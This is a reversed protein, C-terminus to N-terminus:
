QNRPDFMRHIVLRNGSITMDSLTSTQGTRRLGQMQLRKGKKLVEIIIPSVPMRGTKTPLIFQVQVCTSPGSGWPIDGKCRIIWPSM